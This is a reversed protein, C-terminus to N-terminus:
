CLAFNFLMIRPSSIPAFEMPQASIGFRCFGPSMAEPLADEGFTDIGKVGGLFFGSRLLTSYLAARAPLNRSPGPSLSRSEGVVRRVCLRSGPSAFWCAAM